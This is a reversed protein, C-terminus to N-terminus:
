PRSGQRVDDGTGPEPDPTVDPDPVSLAASRVLRRIQTVTAFPAMQAVQAEFRADVRVAAAVQDLSLRAARFLGLLTPHTDAAKAVRIVDTATGRSLGAKITLWQNLSRYGWYETWVGSQLLLITEDVLRAHLSNLHSCLGILRREVLEGPSVSM